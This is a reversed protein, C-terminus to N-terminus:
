KDVLVVGEQNLATDFKVILQMINIRVMFEGKKAHIWRLHLLACGMFPHGYLRSTTPQLITNYVTEGNVVKYDIFRTGVKDNDVPPVIHGSIFPSLPVGNKVTGPRFIPTILDSLKENPTGDPNEYGKIRWDTTKVIEKIRDDIRRLMNVFSIIEADWKDEAGMVMMLSVNPAEPKANSAAAGKQNQREPWLKLGAPCFLYPTSIIFDASKLEGDPMKYLYNLFHTNISTNMQSVSPKKNPVIRAAEVTDYQNSYIVTDSRVKKLGITGTDVVVVAQGDSAKARKKAPQQAGDTEDTVSFNPVDQDLDILDAVPHQENNAAM